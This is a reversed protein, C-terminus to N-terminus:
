KDYVAQFAEPTVDRGTVGTGGTAIVADIGADAIWARLQAAIAEVEDVGIARAALRHGAAAISTKSVSKNFGSKEFILSNAGSASSFIKLIKVSWRRAEIKKITSPM